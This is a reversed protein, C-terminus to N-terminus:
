EVTRNKLTYESQLQM